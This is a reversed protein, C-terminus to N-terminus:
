SSKLIDLCDITFIAKKELDISSIYRDIYPILFSQAMKQAILNSNTNVLFYDTQGIKEIDVVIGLILDNEVISCGIIDFYFYENKSLKCEKRTQEITSYLTQSVLRKADEPTNINIFKIVSKSNKLTQIELVEGSDLYFTAGVKIIEPFDTLIFLKLEGKVGVTKGLKAVEVRM